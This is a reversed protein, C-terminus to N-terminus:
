YKKATGDLNFSCQIPFHDSYRIHPVKFDYSELEQSHLIYDIRFTRYRNIYTYGIGNGSIKFADKLNSSLVQYAYSVPIDNFDGCVILRYKCKKMHEVISNVQSARKKYSTKFKWYISKLGNVDISDRDEINDILYYDEHGLHISELHINYFRITDKNFKIDTYICYNDNDSIQIEGKSVIPFRSFTAIGTNGPKNNKQIYEIHWYKLTSRNLLSDKSNKGLAEKSYFEQLCIVDPRSKKIFNLIKGASNKDTNWNWLNFIRVNYSLVNIRNKTSKPNKDLVTFTVFRTLFSWGLLITLCSILFM